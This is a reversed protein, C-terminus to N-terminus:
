RQKTESDEELPAHARFIEKGSGDIHILVNQWYVSGFRQKAKLATAIFEGCKSCYRTPRM